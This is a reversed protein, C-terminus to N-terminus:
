VFLHCSLCDAQQLGPRCQIHLFHQRQVTNVTYCYRHLVKCSSFTVKHSIFFSASCTESAALWLRINLLVLPTHVCLPDQQWTGLSPHELRGVLLWTSSAKHGSTLSLIQLPCLFSVLHSTRRIDRPNKKPQPGHAPKPYAKKCQTPASLLIQVQKLSIRKLYLFICRSICSFVDQSVDLSSTQFGHGVM